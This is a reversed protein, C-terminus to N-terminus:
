GLRGGRPLLKKQGKIKRAANPIIVSATQCVRAADYPPSDFHDYRSRSSITQDTNLRDTPEFGVGEAVDSCARYRKSRNKISRLFFPARERRQEEEGVRLPRKPNPQPVFDGHKEITLQDLCIPIQPPSTGHVNFFVAFIVFAHDNHKVSSIKNMTEPSLIGKRLFIVNNNWM